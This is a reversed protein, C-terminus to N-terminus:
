DRLLQHVKTFFGTVRLYNRVQDIRLHNGIQSITASIRVHNSISFWSLQSWASGLSVFEMNYCPSFLLLSPQLLLKFRHYKFMEKTRLTIDPPLAKHHLSTCFEVRKLLLVHCVQDPFVMKQILLDSNPRCFICVNNNSM